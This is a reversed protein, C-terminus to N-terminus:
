PINIEDFKKLFIISGNKINKLLNVKGHLPHNISRIAKYQLLITNMSLYLDAVEPLLNNIVTSKM